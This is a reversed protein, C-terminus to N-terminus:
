PRATLAKSMSQVSFITDVTVPTRGDSDTSGFGQQWM